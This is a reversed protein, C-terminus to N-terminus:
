VNEFVVQHLNDSEAEAHELGHLVVLLEYDVCGGEVVLEKGTELVIGPSPDKGDGSTLLTHKLFLLNLRFLFTQGVLQRLWVLVKVRFARILKFFAVKVIFFHHLLRIFLAFDLTLEFENRFNGDKHVVSDNAGVDGENRLWLKFFVCIDKEDGSLKELSHNKLKLL